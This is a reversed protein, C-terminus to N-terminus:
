RLSVEASNGFMSIHEITGLAVGGCDVIAKGQDPPLQPISGVTRHQKCIVMKGCDSQVVVQDGICLDAGPDIEATVNRQGDNFQVDFLGPMKMRDLGGNWRRRWSKGSQERIFDVGM